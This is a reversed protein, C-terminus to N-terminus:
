REYRLTLSAVRQAYDAVEVNSRYDNDSVRAILAFRDSVPVELSVEFRTRRDKRRAVPASNFRDYDREQYRAALALRVGKAGVDLLQHFRLIYETSQNSFREDSADDDAHRAHFM